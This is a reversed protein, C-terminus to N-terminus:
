NMQMSLLQIKLDFIIILTIIVIIIIKILVIIIHCDNKAYENEYHFECLGIGIVNVINM